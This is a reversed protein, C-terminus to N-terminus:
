PAQAPWPIPALWPATRAMHDATGTCAVADTCTTAEGCAMPRNRAMVDAPNSCTMLDDDTPNTCDMLGNRVTTDACAM